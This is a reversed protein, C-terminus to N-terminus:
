VLVGATKQPYKAQVTEYLAAQLAQLVQGNAQVFAAFEDGELRIHYLGIRGRQWYDPIPNGDGDYQGELWHGFEVFITVHKSHDVGIELRVIKAHPYTAGDDITGAEWPTELVIHM